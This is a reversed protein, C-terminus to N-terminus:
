KSAIPMDDFAAYLRSFVDADQGVQRVQEQSLRGLASRIIAAEELTLEVTVGGMSVVKM